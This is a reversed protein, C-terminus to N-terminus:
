GINIRPDTDLNINGYIDCGISLLNGSKSLTMGLRSDILKYTKFTQTYTIYWEDNGESISPVTLETNDLNCISKFDGILISAIYKADTINEINQDVLKFSSGYINHPTDTVNNWEIIWNAGYKQKFISIKEDSSMSFAIQAFLVLLFINILISKNLYNFFEIKRALKSSIYSVM